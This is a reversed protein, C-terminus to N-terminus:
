KKENRQMRIAADRKKFLYTRELSLRRYEEKDQEDVWISTDRGLNRDELQWMRESIQLITDSLIKQDLRQEIQELEEASAFYTIASFTAGFLVIFALIIEIISKRM